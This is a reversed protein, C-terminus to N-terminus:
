VIKERPGGLTSPNCTQAALGLRKIYKRGQGGLTSPNCTHAVTGPRMYKEASTSKNQFRQRRPEFLEGAEAEQTAPIVPAKGGRGALKQIKLLFPTEGPQGPQDQVGSRLHDVQRPLLGSRPPAGKARLPEQEGVLLWASGTKPQLQQLEVVPWSPGEAERASILTHSPNSLGKIVKFILPGLSSSNCAAKSLLTHGWQWDAFFHLKGDWLPLSSFEAPLRSLSPLLTGGPAEMYSSLKASVKVKANHPRSCFVWEARTSKERFGTIGASQWALSPPDNSTLLELSPHGVHHFGTETIGVVQTASAPFDSSEPLHLHCHALIMGSCQVGTQAIFHSRTTGTQPM